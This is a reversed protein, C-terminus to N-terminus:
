AHQWSRPAYEGGLFMMEILCSAWWFREGPTRPIKSMPHEVPLCSEPAVLIIGDVEDGHRSAVGFFGWARCAADAWDPLSSDADIGWPRLNGSVGLSAADERALTTLHRVRM